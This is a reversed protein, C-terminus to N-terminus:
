RRCRAHLCTAASADQFGDAVEAEVEAAVDLKRGGIAFSGFVFDEAANLFEDREGAGIEDILNEDGSGALAAHDLSRKRPWPLWISTRTM